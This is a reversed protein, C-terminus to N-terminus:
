CKVGRLKGEGFIVTESELFLKSVSGLSNIMALVVKPYLFSGLRAACCKNQLSFLPSDTTPIVLFAGSKLM